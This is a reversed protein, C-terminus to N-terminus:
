LGRVDRVGAGVGEAARGERRSFVVVAFWVVAVGVLMSFPVHQFSNRVQVLVPSLMVGAMAPWAGEVPLRDLLGVFLGTLGMIWVVGAPGFNRYAEAIPSFGIAGVGRELVLVNMIRMDDEAPIREMWPLIRRLPRDVTAWYSAGMMYDDGEDHWRVVEVVPRISAGLETLGQMPSASLEPAEGVRAVGVTRLDRLFSVVALLVLGGVLMTRLRVRLGRRAMVVGAVAAPFMAQGRAGASLALLAYIAFLGYAWRHYWRRRTSALIPVGVSLLLLVTAVRTGETVELLNEYSSVFASPGGHIAVLGIWALCMSVVLVAGIASLARDVEPGQPLARVRLPPGLAALTLGAGCSAVGVLSLWIAYHTTDTEFWGATAEEMHESLQWGFVLATTLGFHFVCLGLAYVASASLPGYPARSATRLVAWLSLLVGLGAAEELTLWAYEAEFAFLAVVAFVYVVLDLWLHARARPPTPPTDNGMACLM